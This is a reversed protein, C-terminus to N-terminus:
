RVEAALERTLPAEVLFDLENALQWRVCLLSYFQRPRRLITSLTRPWARAPAAWLLSRAAPISLGTNLLTTSRPSGPRVNKWLAGALSYRAAADPLAMFVSGVLIVQYRGWLSGRGRTTHQTVAYNVLPEGMLPISRPLCRDRFHETVDAPVTFPIQLRSPRQVRLLVSSNCIRASGCLAEPTFTYLRTERFPWITKGTNLWKGNPLEEWLQENGIVLPAEPFQTLVAIQRALFDPEWWNDDELLAAYDAQKEGYVLSFNRTAGRKALPRFLRLRADGFGDIIREVELDGPDDNVVQITLNQHTQTVVSAIARKLMEHRRHTVIYVVVTAM